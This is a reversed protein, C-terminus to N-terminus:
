SHPNITINKEKRFRYVIAFNGSAVPGGPVGMFVPGDNEAGRLEADLFSLRSNQIAEDYETAQPLAM